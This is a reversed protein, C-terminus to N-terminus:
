LYLARRRPGSRLCDDAAHEGPAEDESGIAANVPILTMSLPDQQMVNVFQSYILKCVDFDGANFMDTVKKGIGQAIGAHLKREEKLSVYEVIQDSYLRNLLDYGKKGIVYLKVTKGAAELAVIEERAKRM